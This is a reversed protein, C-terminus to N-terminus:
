IVLNPFPDIEELVTHGEYPDPLEIEEAPFWAFLCLHGLDLGEHM